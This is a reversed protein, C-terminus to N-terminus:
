NYLHMERQFSNVNWPLLNGNIHLPAVQNIIRATQSWSTRIFVLVTWVARQAQGEADQKPKNVVAQGALM